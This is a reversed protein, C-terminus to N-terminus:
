GRRVFKAGAPLPLARGARLQRMRDHGKQVNAANDRPPYYGAQELDFWDDTPKGTFQVAADIAADLTAYQGDFYDGGEDLGYVEYEVVLNSPLGLHVSRVYGPIDAVLDISVCISPYRMVALLQRVDDRTM